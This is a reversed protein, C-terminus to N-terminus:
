QSGHLAAGSGRMGLGEPRHIAGAVGVMACIAWAVFLALAALILLAQGFATWFESM